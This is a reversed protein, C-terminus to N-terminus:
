QPQSHGAGQKDSAATLDVAPVVEVTGMPGLNRYSAPSIAPEIAPPGTLVATQIGGGRTRQRQIEALWRQAEIMKPEKVLALRLQEEAQALQNQDKLILATNYHGAAPGVSQAFQTQAANIEGIHVLAVGLQHRITRDEPRSESAAKLSTVAAPWDQHSMELKGMELHADASKPNIQLAAELRARGETPRDQLLDLRALGVLALVENPRTKLVAAYHTRAEDFNGAEEMWQAYSLKLREPDEVKKDPFDAEVSQQGDGYSVEPRAFPNKSGENDSTKSSWVCGPTGSLILGVIMWSGIRTTDM